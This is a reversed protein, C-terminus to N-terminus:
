EEVQAQLSHRLRMPVRDATWDVQYAPVGAEATRAQYGGRIPWKSNTLGFRPLPGLVDHQAAQYADLTGVDRWYGREEWTQVGPVANGAFDYAFARRSHPLRPLIHRGFDTEGRANAEELLETLVCPNFLYNGMSAYAHAPDLPIPVPQEPKEQFDEIRGDSGVVINGFAPANEIPVPVAAISAEANCRRHFEVMQRVDMRYVHDAAFVAVLEPQHRAILDLNQYVADATGKYSADATDSRPGVVHIRPNMGLSYPAWATRIHEILSQPRYQVLVYIPSIRSNVLNGLVFDILRYGAAFPLAPKAHESTLPHLRTGNGGALVLALVRTSDM